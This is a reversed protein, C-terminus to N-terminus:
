EEPLDELLVRGNGYDHVYAWTTGHEALLDELRRDSGILDSIAQRGRAVEEDRRAASLGPGASTLISVHIRGDARPGATSRWLSVGRYLVESEGSALLDFALEWREGGVRDVEM